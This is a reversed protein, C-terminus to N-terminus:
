NGVTSRLFQVEREDEWQIRFGLKQLWRQAALNAKAILLWIYHFGDLGAEEIAATTLATAVGQRRFDQHIYAMMQVAGSGTPLLVLHGAVTGDVHAVLNIGQRLEKLWYRRLIPDPTPVGFAGDLGAYSNYMQELAPVDDSSLRRVAIQSAVQVSM